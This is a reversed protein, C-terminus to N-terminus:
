RFRNVIQKEWFTNPIILEFRSYTFCTAAPTKHKDRREEGFAGGTDRRQKSGKKKKWLRCRFSQFCTQHRVRTVRRIFLFVVGRGFGWPWTVGPCDGGGWSRWAPCQAIAARRWRGRTGFWLWLLLRHREPHCRLFLTEWHKGCLRLLDEGLSLRDNGGSIVRQDSPHNNVATHQNWSKTRPDLHSFSM